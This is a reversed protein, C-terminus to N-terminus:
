IFQDVQAKLYLETTLKANTIKREIELRKLTSERTKQEKLQEIQEIRHKDRLELSRKRDAM